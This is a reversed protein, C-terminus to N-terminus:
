RSVSPNRPPSLRGHDAGVSEGLFEGQRSLGRPSRRSQAVGCPRRRHV